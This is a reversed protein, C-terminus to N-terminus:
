AGGSRGEVHGLVLSACEPGTEAGRDLQECRLREEVALQTFRHGRVAVTVYSLWTSNRRTMEGFRSFDTQVSM